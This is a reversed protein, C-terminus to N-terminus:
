RARRGGAPGATRARPATARSRRAGASVRRGCGRRVPVECSSNPHRHKVLESLVCSIRQPKQAPRGAEAQRGDRHQREADAEHGAPVGDDITEEKPRPRHGVAVFDDNGARLAALLGGGSADVVPERETGVLVDPRVCAGGVVDRHLAVVQAHGSLAAFTKGASDGLGDNALSLKTSTSPMWSCCPVPSALADRMPSSSHQKGVRQPAPPEIRVPVDDAARDPQCTLLRRGDDADHRRCEVAKAGFPDIEDDVQGRDRRHPSVPRAQERLRRAATQSNRAAQTRAPRPLLRALLQLQQGRAVPLGHRLGLQGHRQSIRRGIARRALGDTQHEGENARAQQQNEQQGARVDAIEIQGAAEPAPRLHGDAQRKARAARTEHALQEGFAQHHRRERASAGEEHRSLTGM